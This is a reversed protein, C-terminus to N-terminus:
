KEHLPHTLSMIPQMGRIANVSRSDSILTFFLISQITATEVPLCLLVPQEKPRELVPRISSQETKLENKDIMAVNTHSDFPIM